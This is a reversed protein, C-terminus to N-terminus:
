VGRRVGDFHYKLLFFHSLDVLHLICATTDLVGLYLSFSICFFFGVCSLQHRTIQSETGSARTTTMMELAVYSLLCLSRSLERM